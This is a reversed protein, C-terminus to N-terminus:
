SKEEIQKIDFNTIYIGLPNKVSPEFLDINILASWRITRLTYGNRNKETTTFYTIYTRETQKLPPEIDVTRTREGIVAFPNNSRYFADLETIAGAQVIASTEEIYRRQADADIVWAHM